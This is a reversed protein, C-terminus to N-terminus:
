KWSRRPKGTWTNGGKLAHHPNRPLTQRGDCYGAEVRQRIHAPREVEDLMPMVYDGALHPEKRNCREVDPEMGLWFKGTTPRSRETSSPGPLFGSLDVAQVKPNSKWVAAWSALLLRAIGVKKV